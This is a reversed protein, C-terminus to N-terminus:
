TKRGITVWQCPLFSFSFQGLEISLIAVWYVLLNSHPAGYLNSMRPSRPNMTGCEFSGPRFFLPFFIAAEIVTRIWSCWGYVAFYNWIIFCSSQQVFCATYKLCMKEREVATILQLRAVKSFFNYRINLANLIGIKQRDTLFFSSGGRSPAIRRNKGDTLHTEVFSISPTM